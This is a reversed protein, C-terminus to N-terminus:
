VWQEKLRIFDNVPIRSLTMFLVAFMLRFLEKFEIYLANDSGRRASVKDIFIVAIMISIAWGSFIAM